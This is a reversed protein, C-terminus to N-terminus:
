RGVAKRALGWTFEAGWWVVAGVAIVVAAAAAGALIAVIDSALIM